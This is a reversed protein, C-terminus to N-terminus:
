QLGVHYNLDDQKNRLEHSGSSGTVLTVVEPGNLSLSGSATPAPHATQIVGRQKRQKVTYLVTTLIYVVHKLKLFSGM